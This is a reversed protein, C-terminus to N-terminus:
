HMEDQLIPVIVGRGKVCLIISGWYASMFNHNSESNLQYETAQRQKQLIWHEDSWYAYWNKHLFCSYMYKVYYCVQFLINAIM